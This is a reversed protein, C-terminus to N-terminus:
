QHHQQRRPRCYCPCPLPPHSLLGSNIPLLHVRAPFGAAFSGFSGGGLIGLGYVLRAPINNMKGLSALRACLGMKRTVEAVPTGLEAQRLAFAIQEETFKSKKM